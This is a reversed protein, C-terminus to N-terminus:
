EAPVFELVAFIPRHDSAVPEDIVRVEVVRWTGEPRVLIYDIQRNPEGSPYTPLPEANIRTWTQDLRELTTSDPRANLDGMLITPRDPHEAVVEDILAASALREGDDPRYDLHTALVRITGSGGPLTLDVVLCGRQEGEYHSPLHVNKRAVIPLKTLLANGYDGGQYPINREFVWATGTLEALEAPEDIKGSREVGRDVEQLAVIDPEVANIVRAIRQMDVKEDMGRGHRINYSLVRIRIPEDAGAPAPPSAALILTFAALLQRRLMTVEAFRFTFPFEAPGTYRASRTRPLM